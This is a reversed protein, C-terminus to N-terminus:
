GKRERGEADPGAGQKVAGGGQTAERIAADATEKGSGPTWGWATNGVEVCYRASEAEKAKSKATYGLQTAAASVANDMQTVGPKMALLLGRVFDRAEDDLTQKTAREWLELFCAANKLTRKTTPSYGVVGGDVAVPRGETLTKLADECAGSLASAVAWFRAIEEPAAKPSLAHFKVGAAAAGFAECQARYNCRLCGMGVRAKGDSMDGADMWFKVRQRRQRLEAEHEEESQVLLKTFVRGVRVGIIDVSYADAEPYMAKLATFIVDCQISDLEDATVHWGTKYDQAWGVQLEGFDPDDLKTTGVVDCILRVHRAPSDWEVKRWQPDFAVGHEYEAWRPFEWWKTFEEALQKGAWVHEPAMSQTLTLATSEIAGWPEENAKRKAGAAHLCAHAAIGIAAAEPGEVEYERERSARYLTVAYPCNRTFVNLATPSWQNM